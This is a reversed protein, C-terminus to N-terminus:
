PPEEDNSTSIDVHTGNSYWRRCDQRHRLFAATSQSHPCNGRKFIAEQPHVGPAFCSLIWRLLSHGSKDNSQTGMLLALSTVTLM